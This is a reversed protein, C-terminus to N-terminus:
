MCRRASLWLKHWRLGALSWASMAEVVVVVLSRLGLVDAGMVSKWPGTPGSPMELGFCLRVAVPNPACSILLTSALMGSGCLAAHTSQFSAATGNTHETSQDYRICTSSIRSHGERGDDLGKYDAFMNCVALGHLQNKIHYATRM